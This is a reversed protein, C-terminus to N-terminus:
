PRNQILFDYCEQSIAGYNSVAGCLYPKQERATKCNFSSSTNVEYYITTIKKCSHSEQVNFLMNIPLPNPYESEANSNPGHFIKSEPISAETISDSFYFSSDDDM